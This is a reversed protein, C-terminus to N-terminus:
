ITTVITPSPIGPTSGAMVMMMRRRTTRKMTMKLTRRMGIGMTMRTTKKKNRMKMNIM